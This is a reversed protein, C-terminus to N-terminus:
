LTPYMTRIINSLPREYSQAIISLKEGNRIDRDIISQVDKIRRKRCLVYSVYVCLTMINCIYVYCLNDYALLLMYDCSTLVIYMM